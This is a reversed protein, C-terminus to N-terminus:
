RATSWSCPRSPGPSMMVSKDLPPPVKSVARLAAMVVLMEEATCGAMACNVAVKEVTAHGMGPNMMCVLDDRGAQIQSLLAEVREPTPPLLPHGDGWERSLYFDNFSSQVQWVDRGTFNLTKEEVPPLASDAAAANDGTLLRIIEDIVPLTQEHVQEPTLATYVRPVVV